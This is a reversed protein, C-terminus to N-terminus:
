ALMAQRQKLTPDALIPTRDVRPRERHQTRRAAPTLNGDANERPTDARETGAAYLQLAHDSGVSCRMLRQLKEDAHRVGGAGGHVPWPPVTHVWFGRTPHNSRTACETMRDRTDLRNNRPRRDGPATGRGRRGRHGWRAAGTQYPGKVPGRRFDEQHGGKQLGGSTLREQLGRGNPNAM